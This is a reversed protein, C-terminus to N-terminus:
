AGRRLGDYAAWRTGKPALGDQEAARALSILAVDLADM